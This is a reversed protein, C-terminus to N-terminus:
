EPEGVEVLRPALDQRQAVPSLSDAGRPEGFLEFEEFEKFEEFGELDEIEQNRWGARAFVPWNKPPSGQGEVRCCIYNMWM